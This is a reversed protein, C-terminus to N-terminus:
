FQSRTPVGEASLITRVALILLRAISLTEPRGAIIPEPFLFNLLFALVAPKVHFLPLVYGTQRYIGSPM